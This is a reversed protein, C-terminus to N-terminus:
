GPHGSGRSRMGQGRQGCVLDFGSALQDQGSGGIGFDHTEGVETQTFGRLFRHPRGVGALGEGLVAPDAHMQDLARLGIDGFRHGRHGPSGNVM